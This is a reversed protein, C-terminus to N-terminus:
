FANRFHLYCTIQDSTTLYTATNADTTTTCSTDANSAVAGTGPKGDDIKADLSAAEVPNFIPIWPHGGSNHTGISFFHGYNGDFFGPQGLLVSSYWLCYTGNKLKSAPTNQGPVFETVANSGAVGTYSGPLFGSLALQQWFRFLEYWTSSNAWGVTVTGSGDGNCTQGNTGAQNTCSAAVQPWYSTANSMDGPLAQYKGKFNNVAIKFQTVDKAVSQLEASRIMDQGVLVGGIILGIIVMVISLEVLTFGRRHQQTRSHQIGIPLAM